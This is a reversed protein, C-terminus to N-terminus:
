PRRFLPQDAVVNRGGIELVTIRTAEVDELMAGWGGVTVTEDEDTLVTMTVQGSLREVPDESGTIGSFAAQQVVGTTSIEDGTDVEFGEVHVRPTAGDDVLPQLDRVCQRIDVYGVPFSDGYDSYVTEWHEWLCTLFYWHFVFTHTRDNVLVGYQDHSNPHHSFCTKQRDVLAVFPAPLRRHRVELCAGEFQDTPLETDDGDTHISIRTSVGRDHAAALKPRLRSFDEPTLSLQIQYEADEIFTEAREIVTQFQTVISTRNSELEPQEWREEVEEAATEFRTARDRLDSLVMAPSHARAHLSGMEYTEIYGHSELGDLVDYIRPKPVDSAEAIETASAAGLDLLAVYAAAQYPSLGATELTNSLEATDM